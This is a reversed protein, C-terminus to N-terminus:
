LVACCNRSTPTCSINESMSYRGARNLQRVRLAVSFLNPCLRRMFAFARASESGVGRVRSHAEMATAMTV